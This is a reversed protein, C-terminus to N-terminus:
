IGILLPISITLNDGPQNAKCSDQNPLRHSGVCRGPPGEEDGVGKREEKSLGCCLLRGM